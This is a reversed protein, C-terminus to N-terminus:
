KLYKNFFEVTLGFAHANNAGHGANPMIYFDVPMQAQQLAAYLDKSQQLPVLKDDAGHVILFPCAQKGAYFLPSAQKAKDRNNDISGGLLAPIFGKDKHDNLVVLNTPGFYDVVAQVRSSVGTTGETGELAPDDPTLGMLAVLHGGASDGIAGIKEAGYGYNAAHARLWRVAAKCDQIQAPFIAEDTLRYDIAALAFGHSVLGNAFGETKDLGGWGGGHVYVVLPVPGTVNKPIFLDLKLDHRGVRAYTLNKWIRVDPFGPAGDSPQVPPFPRVAGVKARTGPVATVDRLAVASVIPYPTGESAAWNLAFTTEKARFLGTVSQGYPHGAELTGSKPIHAAADLSVSNGVTDSFDVVTRWHSQVLGWLQVQYIHDVTLGDFRIEGVPGAKFFVGNSVIASYDASVGDGVPLANYFSDSDTTSRVNGNFFQLETGGTLFIRGDGHTLGGGRITHFTTDGITREVAPKGSGQVNRGIYAQIADVFAGQRSVDADGRIDVPPEWAIEQAGLGNGLALLVLACSAGFRRVPTFIM